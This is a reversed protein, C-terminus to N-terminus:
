VLVYKIGEYKSHEVKWMDESLDKLASILKTSNGDNIWNSKIIPLKEQLLSYEIKILLLSLEENGRKICGEETRQFIRILLETTVKSASEKGTSSKEISYNAEISKGGLPMFRRDNQSILALAVLYYAKGM